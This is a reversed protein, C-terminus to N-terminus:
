HYLFNYLLLLLLFALLSFYMAKNKFHRRTIIITWSAPILTHSISKLLLLFVVICHRKPKINTICFFCGRQYCNSNNDHQRSYFLSWHLNKLFFVAVIFVAVDFIFKSRKETAEKSQYFDLRTILIVSFLPLKFSFLPLEM